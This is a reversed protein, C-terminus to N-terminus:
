QDGGESTNTDAVTFAAYRPWAMRLPEGIVAGVLGDSPVSALLPTGDDLRVRIRSDAGLYQVDTVTGQM